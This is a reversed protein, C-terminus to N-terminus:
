DVDEIKMKMFPHYWIGKTMKKKQRRVKNYIQIEILVDALGTHEEEFNPNNTMYAYVSEASSKYFKGSPAILQHKECFKKYNKQQGITEVTMGWLDNTAIGDFMKFARDPRLLKNTEELARLDFALNYASVECIGYKKIVEHMTKLAEFWTVKQFKGTKLGEIYLPYKKFYYAKQMLHYNDFIESIVYSHQELVTGDNNFVAFGLDFVVQQNTPSPATEVDVMLKYSKRKDIKKM